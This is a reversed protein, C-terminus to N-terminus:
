TPCVEDPAAVAAAPEALNCSTFLVTENRGDSAIVRVRVNVRGHLFAPSVTLPARTQEQVTVWRQGDDFSSQIFFTLAGAEPDADRARWTFELGGQTRRVTVPGDLRPAHHSIPFTGLALNQYVLRVASGAPHNPLYANFAGSWTGPQDPTRDRADFQLPAAGAAVELGNPDLLLITVQRTAPTAQLYEADRRPDTGPEGVAVTGHVSSHMLGYSRGVTGAVNLWAAREFLRGAPASVTARALYDFQEEHLRKLIQRYAAPTLWPGVCGGTSTYSMLDNMSNASHLDIGAALPELIMVATGATDAPQCGDRPPHPVGFTHALEHSSYWDTYSGDRDWPYVGLRPVGAPGSAIYSADATPPLGSSCGRMPLSGGDAVIGYYRTRSDQGARVDLARIRALHLNIDGCELPTPVYMSVWEMRVESVPLVRRAWDRLAVVQDEDAHRGYEDRLAVVKLRLVASDGITVEQPLECAPCAIMEGSQEHFLHALRLRVVGPPLANAPLEFNLTAPFLMRNTAARGEKDPNLVAANLSQLLTDLGADTRVHLRGRISATGTENLRLHVRVWTLRGGVLPVGNGTDQMGQTVELPHLLTATDIPAAPVGLPAEQAPLIPTAVATLVTLLLAARERASGRIKWPTWIPM